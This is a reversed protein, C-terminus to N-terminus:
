GERAKDQLAQHKNYQNLRHRSRDSLPIALCLFIVTAICMVLIRMGAGNHRGRFFGVVFAIGEAMSASLGGLVSSTVAIGIWDKERPVTTMLSMVMAAVLAVGLWGSFWNLVIGVEGSRGRRFITRAIAAVISGIAGIVFFSFLVRPYDSAVLEDTISGVYKGNPAVYYSSEVGKDLLTVKYCEKGDERERSTAVIEGDPVNERLSKLAKPPLRDFEEARAWIHGTASAVLMYSLLFFCVTNHRM